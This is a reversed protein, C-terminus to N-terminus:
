GKPLSHPIFATQSHLLVIFVKQKFMSKDHHVIFDDNSVMGIMYISPYVTLM